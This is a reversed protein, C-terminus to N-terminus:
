DKLFVQFAEAVKVGAGNTMRDFSVRLFSNKLEQYIAYIAGVGVVADADGLDALPASERKVTRGNSDVVSTSGVGGTAGDRTVTYVSNRMFGTDVQGNATIKEKTDAEVDFALKRISAETAGKIATTVKAGYWRLADSM